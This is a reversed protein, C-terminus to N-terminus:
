ENRERERERERERVACMIEIKNDQTNMVLNYAVLMVTYYQGTKNFTRTMELDTEKSLIYNGQTEIFAEVNVVTDSSDTM